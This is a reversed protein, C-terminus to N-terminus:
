RGVLAELAERLRPDLALVEQELWRGAAALRQVLAPEGSLDLDAPWARVLGRAEVAEEWFEPVVWTLGPALERLHRVIRVRNPDLDGFHLM